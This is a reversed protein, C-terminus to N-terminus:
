NSEPGLRYAPIPCSARCFEVRSNVASPGISVHHLAIPLEVQVAPEPGAMRIAWVTKGTRKLACMRVASKIALGTREFM